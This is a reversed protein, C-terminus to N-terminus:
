KHFKDKSWIYSSEKKEDYLFVRKISNKENFTQVNRHGSILSKPGLLGFEILEINVRITYVRGM